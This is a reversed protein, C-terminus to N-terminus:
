VSAAREPPPTDAQVSAQAQAAVHELVIRHIFMYGGGVRRLLVLRAAYDLFPILPHPLVGSRLLLLRLTYHKLVAFGGYRLAAILGLPVGWAFGQITIDRLITAITEGGAVLAMLVGLIMWFALGVGIGIALAMRLSAIIGQNPTVTTEITDRQLGKFVAYIAGSALGVALGILLWLILDEPATGREGALAWLLVAM